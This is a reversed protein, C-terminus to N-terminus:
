PWSRRQQTPLFAVLAQEKTDESVEADKMVKLLNAIEGSLTPPEKKEIVREREPQAQTQAKMVNVIAHVIEATEKESMEFKM